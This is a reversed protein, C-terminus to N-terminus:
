RGKKAKDYQGYMGSGRGRRSVWNAQHSIGRDHSGEGNRDHNPPESNGEENAESFSGIEPRCNERLTAAQVNALAAPWDGGVARRRRCARGNVASSAGVLTEGPWPRSDSSPGVMWQRPLVKVQLCTLSRLSCMPIQKKRAGSKYQRVSAARTFSFQQESESMASGHQWVPGLAAVPVNQRNEAPKPNAGIANAPPLPAIALCHAFLPATRRLAACM